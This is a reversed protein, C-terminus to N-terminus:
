TTNRYIALRYHHQSSVIEYSNFQMSSHLWYRSCQGRDNLNRGVAASGQLCHTRLARPLWLSGDLPPRASIASPPLRTHVLPRTSPYGFSCGDCSVQESGLLVPHCPACSLVGNEVQWPLAVGLVSESLQYITILPHRILSFVLFGLKVPRCRLADRHRMSRWAAAAM